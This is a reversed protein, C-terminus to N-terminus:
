GEKAQVLQGTNTHNHPTVEMPGFEKKTSALRQAYQEEYSAARAMSKLFRESESLAAILYLDACNTTLWNTENTTSLAAMRSLVDFTVNHNQDPKPAIYLTTETDRCYFRPRGTASGYMRLFAYSKEELPDGTDDMVIDDIRLWAASPIPFINTNFPLNTATYLHFQRLDLDRQLRDQVDALLRPLETQFEASDDETERQCDILLQSYSTSSAM